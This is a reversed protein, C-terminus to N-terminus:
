FRSQRGVTITGTMGLGGHFTCHYPFTGPTNFTRQYSLNSADIPAAWIGNQNGVTGSTTNHIGGVWNWKVDDGETITVSAPIFVNNQVSVNQTAAHAPRVSGLLPFSILLSLLALLPLGFHASEVRRSRPFM